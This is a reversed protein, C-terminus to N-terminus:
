VVKLRGLKNLVIRAVEKTYVNYLDFHGNSIAKMPNNSVLIKDTANVGSWTVKWNSHHWQWHHVQVMKNKKVDLKKLIAGKSWNLDDDLPVLYVTTGLLVAHIKAYQVANSIEDILIQRENKKVILYSSILGLVALGTIIALTIVLEILTFGKIKM